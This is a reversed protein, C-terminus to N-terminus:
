QGRVRGLLDAGTECDLIWDGVATLEEAAGFGELLGSLRQGTEAGFRKAALRCLLAREDARGQEIGEMRGRDEWKSRWAKINAGLVTTMDGGRREALACELDALPPLGAGGHRRLQDKVRFYFGERLGAEDAGGYREFAAALRRALTEEDRGGELGILASVRNDPPLAGDDEAWARVDLVAYARGLLNRPLAGRGPARFFQAPRDGGAPWLRRGNYLVVPLILPLRGERRYAGSRQLERHLLHAYESVRWAMEPDPRSQFEPLLALYPRAGDALQPGAKWEVTCALDGIRQRLAEGVFSSSRKALSDLDLEGHWDPAVFGRLLDRVARLDSFILKNSSDSTAMRGM